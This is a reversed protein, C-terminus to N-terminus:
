LLLSRVPVLHKYKRPKVPDPTVPDPEVPDPTVPDTSGGQVYEIAGIDPVGNQIANGLIDKTGFTSGGADICPSDVKLRLDGNAPDVLRPDGEVNRMSRKYLSELSAYTSCASGFRVFGSAQPGFSNHEYVNGSGNTGNNDGGDVAYLREAKTGYAINNRVVNNVLGSAEFNKVAIGWYGGYITNNLVHNDHAGQGYNGEVQIGACYQISACREVTNYAVDVNSSKEVFIGRSATNVIRNRAILPRGTPDIM